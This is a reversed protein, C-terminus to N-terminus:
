IAQILIFSTILAIVGMEIKYMSKIDESSVTDKYYADYLNVNM